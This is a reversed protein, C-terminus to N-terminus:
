NLDNYIPIYRDGNWQSHSKLDNRLGIYDGGATFDLTCLQETKLKGDSYTVLKFWNYGMKGGEIVIGNHKPYAHCSEMGGVYGLNKLTGNEYKYCYTLAGAYDPWLALLLEAQGDNDLDTLWYDQFYYNGMSDTENEWSQIEKKYASKMESSMSKVCSEEIIAPLEANLSRVKAVNKERLYKIIESMKNGAIVEQSLVVTKASKVESWPSVHRKKKITKYTRVRVYYTTGDGLKNITTTVKKNGKLTITKQTKFDKKTSYQVQYGDIGSNRTWRVTIKKQGGAIKNISSGKSGIKFTLKKTGSYKGKFKVIATATGIKKNNKYSVSYSGSSIAKGKADKVLVGPKQAKGNYAVLSKKMKITKPRQIATSITKGCKTCKKSISGNKKLTAKTTKTTKFSHAAKIVETKKEGCITCTYTKEGNILKDKTCKASKTVKGKDWKHSSCIKNVEDYNRARVYYKVQSYYCERGWNIICYHQAGLVELNCEVVTFSNTSVSLVVAYHEAGNFAVFDGVRLGSSGYTESIGSAREGFVDYFVKRAFGCCQWGDDFYNCDYSGAGVNGGHVACPTDTYHDAFVENTSNTWAEEAPVIHNWYKGQPFKSKLSVLKRYVGDQTAAEATYRDSSYDIFVDSIPLMGMILILTVFFIISKKAIKKM